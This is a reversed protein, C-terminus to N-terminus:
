SYIIFTYLYIVGARPLASGLPAWGVPAACESALVPSVSSSFPVAENGPLAEEEYKIFLHHMHISPERGSWTTGLGTTGQRRSSCMEIGASALCLQFM